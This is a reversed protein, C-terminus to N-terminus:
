EIRIRRDIEFAGDGDADERIRMTNSRSDLSIEQRGGSKTERVWPEPSVALMQHLFAEDDTLQDAPALEPPNAGQRAQILIIAGACALLLLMWSPVGFGSGIRQPEIQFEADPEDPDATMEPEPHDLSGPENELDQKQADEILQRLRPTAEDAQDFPVGLVYSVVWQGNTAEFSEELTVTASISWRSLMEDAFFGADAASRFRALPALHVGDTGGEADPAAFEQSDDESNNGASNTHPEM